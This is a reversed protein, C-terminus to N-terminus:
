FTLSEFFRAMLQQVEERKEPPAVASIFFIENLRGVIMMKEFAVPEPYQRIGPAVESLHAYTIDGRRKITARQLDPDRLGIQRVLERMEWEKIMSFPYDLRLTGVEFWIAM